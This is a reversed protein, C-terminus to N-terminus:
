IGLLEKLPIIRHVSKVSTLPFELMKPPNFQECILKTATRRTLRKIFGRGNRDGKAAHFEIVVYDGISPNRKPNVYLLEGDEFRPEMSHGTVFLAYVDKANAIGPPRRVYDVIEGNSYFDADSGGVAIGHVPVNPPFSTVGPNSELKRLFEVEAARRQAAPSAQDTVPQTVVESTVGAINLDLFKCVTLLHGTSPETDGAEWQGVAARSVGVARAVDDQSLQKEKRAARLANGLVKAMLPNKVPKMTLQWALIAQM